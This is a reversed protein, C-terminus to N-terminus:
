KQLFFDSLNQYAKCPIQLDSQTISVNQGYYSKPGMLVPTDVSM